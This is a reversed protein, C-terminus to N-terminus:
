EPTLRFLQRANAAMVERAQDVPVHKLEAVMRVVLSINAPENRQGPEQGLVPSDTETTLAGLPLRSVLKQKQRSRVVSPPVSFIYGAEIGRRAHSVRGDFAHMLVRRAGAELLLDLTYHGASRSHVNLPLDLELSLRVFRSLVQRQIEREPEERAIWFDLGVEGIGALRHANRRILEEVAAAEDLSAADPHLGLCPRVVPHEGALALVRRGDALNEAVCVIQKVGAAAARGLVKPLDEAFSTDTLHAHCDIM